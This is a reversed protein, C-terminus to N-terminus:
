PGNDMRDTFLLSMFSDGSNGAPELAGWSQLRASAAKGARRPCARARERQSQSTALGRSRLVAHSPPARWRARTGPKGHSRNSPGPPPSHASADCVSPRGAKHCLSVHAFVAARPATRTGGLRPRRGLAQDQRLPHCSCNESGLPFPHSFPARPGEPSPWSRGSTRRDQEGRTGRPARRRGPGGWTM